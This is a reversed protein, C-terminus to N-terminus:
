MYPRYGGFSPHSTPPHNLSQPPKSTGRYQQSKGWDQFGQQQDPQWHSRSNQSQRQM